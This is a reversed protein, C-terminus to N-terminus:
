ATRMEGVIRRLEAALENRKIFEPPLLAWTALM